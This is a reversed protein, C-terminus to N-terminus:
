RRPEDIPILKTALLTVFFGCVAGLVVGFGICVNFVGSVDLDQMGGGAGADSISVWALSFCIVGGFCAGGVVGALCAIAWLLGRRSVGNVPLQDDVADRM